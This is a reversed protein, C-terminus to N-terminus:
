EWWHVNKNMDDDWCLNGCTEIIIYKDDNPSSNKMQQIENNIDTYKNIIINTMSDIDNEPWWTDPNNQPYNAIIGHLEEKFKNSGYVQKLINIKEWMVYTIKLKLWNSSTPPFRSSREFTVGSDYFDYTLYGDSHCTHEVDASRKNRINYENYMNCYSAVFILLLIKIDLARFEKVLQQLSMSIYNSTSPISKKGFRREIENILEISKKSEKSWNTVIPKIDNNWHFTENNSRNILNNIEGFRMSEATALIVRALAGKLTNVNGNYKHIADFALFINIWKIEPDSSGILSGYDSNFDLRQPTINITHGNLQIPENINTITSDSFYYFNGSDQLILNHTTQQIFGQLYLDQTRFVLALEGINEINVPIVFYNYESAPNVAHTRFDNSSSEFFTTLINNQVLFNIIDTMNQNYNNNNESSIILKPTTIGKSLTNDKINCKKDKARKIRIIKELNNTQQYNTDSNKITEEKQYPSAAITTPVATGSITLVSLLSLLKKM